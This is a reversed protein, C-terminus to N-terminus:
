VMMFHLNIWKTPQLELARLSVPTLKFNIFRYAAHPFLKGVWSWPHQCYRTQLVFLYFMPWKGELYFIYEKGIMKLTNVSEIKKVKRYTCIIKLSWKWIYKLEDTKFNQLENFCEKNCLGLHKKNSVLRVLYAQEVATVSLLM